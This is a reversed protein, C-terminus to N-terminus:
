IIMVGLEAMLIGAILWLTKQMGQVMAKVSDVDRELDDIKPCPGDAYPCHPEESQM